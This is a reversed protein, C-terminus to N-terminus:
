LMRVVIEKGIRVRDSGRRERAMIMAGHERSEGCQDVSGDCSVVNNEDAINVDGVIVSPVPGTLNAAHRELSLHNAVQVFAFHRVKHKPTRSSRIAGNRETSLGNLLYM